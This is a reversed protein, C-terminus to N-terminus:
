ALVKNLRGTMNVPRLVFNIKPMVDQFLVCHEKCWEHVQSTNYMIIYIYIYAYIYM